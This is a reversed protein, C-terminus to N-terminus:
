VPQKRGGRLEVVAGYVAGTAPSGTVTVKVRIYRKTGIYSVKQVSDTTIAVLPDGALDGAAVTSFSSNDNSEEITPTHAGDTRTGAPIIILNQGFNALDVGTGNATATRAAPALTTVVKTTSEIETRM